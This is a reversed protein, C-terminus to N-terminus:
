KGCFQAISQVVKDYGVMASLWSLLMLALLMVAMRANIQTDMMIIYGGGVALSLILSVIGALTNSYYSKGHESLLKKLAETILGTLVSVMLLLMLFIEMDM